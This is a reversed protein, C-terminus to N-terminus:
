DILNYREAERETILIENKGVRRRYALREVEFNTLVREKKGDL